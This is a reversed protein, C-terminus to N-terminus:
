YRRTQHLQSRYVELLRDAFSEDNAEVYADSGFLDAIRGATDVGVGVVAIGDQRCREIESRADAKPGSGGPLGVTPAGDTVVLLVQENANAAKLLRRGERVGAALPTSGGTEISSLHAPEFPENPGTVLPLSPDTGHFGTALFEDGLLEAAVAVAALAVTAEFGDMSGSLDISVGIARSGTEVHRRRAFLGDNPLRGGASRAVASLDLRHGTQAQVERREEPPFEGLLERITEDLGRERMADLVEDADDQTGIREDRDARLGQLESNTRRDLSGLESLADNLVTDDKKEYEVEVVRVEGRTSTSRREADALLVETLDERNANTPITSKAGTDAGDESKKSEGEEDAWAHGETTSGGAECDDDSEGIAPEHTTSRQQEEDTRDQEGLEDDQGGLQEALRDEELNEPLNQRWDDGRARRLGRRVTYALWHWWRWLLQALTALVAGILVPTRRLAGSVASLVRRPTAVAGQWLAKAQVVVNEWIGLTLAIARVTLWVLFVPVLVGLLPPLVMTYLGAVLDGPPDWDIIPDVFADVPKEGLVFQFLLYPILFPLFYVLILSDVDLERDGPLRANVAGAATGTGSAIGSWVRQGGSALAHRSREFGKGLATRFQETRGRLVTRFRTTAGAVSDAVSNWCGLANDVVPEWYGFRSTVSRLMGWVVFIPLLLPYLLFFLGFPGDPFPKYFSELADEYGFPSAAFIVPFMPVLAALEVVDRVGTVEDSDEPADAEADRVFAPNDQFPLDLEEQLHREATRPRYMRDVLTRLLRDAVEDRLEASAGPDRVRDLETAAYSLTGRVNESTSELGAVQGTYALERLGELLAADQRLDDVRSPDDFTAEMRLAYAGALGRYESLRATTVHAHEVMRHVFVALPEPESAKAAFSETRDWSEADRCYSLHNLTDLLLEYEEDRSLDAELYEGARAPLVFEHSPGKGRQSRDADVRLEDDFDIVVADDGYVSGLSELVRRIRSTGADTSEGDTAM